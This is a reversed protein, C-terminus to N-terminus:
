LFVPLFSRTFNLVFPTDFGENKQSLLMNLAHMSRLATLKTKFCMLIQDYM